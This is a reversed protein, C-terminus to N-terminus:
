AARARRRRIWGIGVLGGGLLTLSAPEPAAVSGPTYTVPASNAAINGTGGLPGIVDSSFFYGNQNAVFDSISIGKANSVRFTLPGPNANSAGPGCGPCNIVYGFEGYPTNTGGDNSLAFVNSSSGTLTVGFGDSLDLNFALAHHGGGTSVFDTNASLTVTVDVENAGNQVLDITGLAGSGITGSSISDFSTVSDARAAEISCLLTASAILAASLTRM